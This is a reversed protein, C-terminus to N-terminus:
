GETSSDMLWSNIEHFDKESLTGAIQKLLLLDFIYDFRANAYDRKVGYLAQQAALVDVITRTGAKYGAQTANLAVEASRASQKQAMVRSVDTHVVRYLNNTNQLVERKTFEFEDETKQYLAKANRRSAGTAGGNYLPVELKISLSSSTLEGESTQVYRDTDQYNGVLDLTPLHAAAKAQHEKRAVEQAHRASQLQPNNNLALERWAKLKNPTPKQIPFEAKLPTVTTSNSGTLTNLIELALDLDQQAIIHQVSAIDFAAKAEQVDTEAILQAKYRLETQDLQRKIASKEALRFRLNEEARLVELYVTLVRIYFEQQNFKFDAVVQRDLAKGKQYDFWRDMRFLPQVLTVNYRTADYDEDSFAVTESDLTEQSTEASVLLTPKIGAASKKFLEKNAQYGHVTAAWQADSKQAQKLVTLLDQSYVNLSTFSSFALTASAIFIKGRNLNM